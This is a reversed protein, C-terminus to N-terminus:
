RAARLQRRRVRRRVDVRDHNDSYALTAVPVLAALLGVAAISSTRWSERDPLMMDALLVVIMTAVIILEPALAHWDFTPRRSASPRPPLALM